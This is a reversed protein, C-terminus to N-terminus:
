CNGRHTCKNCKYNHVKRAPVKGTILALHRVLLSKAYDDSGLRVLIPKRQGNARDSVVVYGYGATPFGLCSLLWAQLTLQEFDTREVQPEGREKLEVPVYRGDVLQYVQDPRGQLRVEGYSPLTVVCSMDREVCILSSSRLDAPMWDYPSVQEKQGLYTRLSKVGLLAAGAFLLFVISNVVM